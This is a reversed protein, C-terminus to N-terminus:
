WADNSFRGDPRLSRVLQITWDPSGQVPGQEGEQGRTTHRGVQEIKKPTMDPGEQKILQAGCRADEALALLLHEVSVFSDGWKEKLETARNVVGELNRGLM